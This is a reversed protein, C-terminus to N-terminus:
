KLFLLNSKLCIVVDMEIQIIEDGDRLFFKLPIKIDKDTTVAFHGNTNVYIKVGNMLVYDTSLPVHSRGFSCSMLIDVPNKEMDISYRSTGIIRDIFCSKKIVTM